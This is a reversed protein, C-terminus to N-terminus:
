CCSCDMLCGDCAPCAALKPAAIVRLISLAVRNETAVAWHATFRGDYGSRGNRRVPFLLMSARGGRPRNLGCSASVWQARPLPERGMKEWEATTLGFEALV